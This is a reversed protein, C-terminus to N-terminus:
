QATKQMLYGAVALAMEGDQIVRMLLWAAFSEIPAEALKRRFDNKTEFDDETDLNPLLTERFRATRERWNPMLSADLPPNLACQCYFAAAAPSKGLLEEADDKGRQTLAVKGNGVSRIQGRELLEELATALPDSKIEEM